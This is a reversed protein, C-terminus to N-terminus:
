PASRSAMGGVYNASAELDRASVWFHGEECPRNYPRCSKGWSNRILYRCEGHEERRAVVLAVHILEGAPTLLFKSLDLQVAAPEGRDLYSSLAPLLRASRRQEREERSLATLEYKLGPPLSIRHRDCSRGSLRLFAELNSEAALSEGLEEEGLTPHATASLEVARCTEASLSRQPAAARTLAEIGEIWEDVTEPALDDGSRIRNEECVGERRAIEMADPTRGKKYDLLSSNRGSAEARQRAYRPVESLGFTRLSLDFASIRRGLHFSLLDAAAFGYCWDTTGQNRVPGMRPRLDVEACTGASAIEGFSIAALLFILTPM